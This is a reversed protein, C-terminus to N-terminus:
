EGSGAEVADRAPRAPPAPADATASRRRDYSPWPGDARRVMLDSPPAPPSSRARRGRLVLLGAVGVAGMVVALVAALSWGGVAAVAALTCGLAATGVAAKANGLSM